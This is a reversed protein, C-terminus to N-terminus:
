TKAFHQISEVFRVAHMGAVRHLEHFLETLIRCRELLEFLCQEADVFCGDEGDVSEALAHQLLRGEFATRRELRFENLVGVFEEVAGHGIEETPIRM